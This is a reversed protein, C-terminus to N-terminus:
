KNKKTNNNKSNMRKKMTKRRKDKVSLRLKDKVSLWASSNEPLIKENGYDNTRCKHYDRLKVHIKPIKVIYREDDRKRVIWRYQPRQTGPLNVLIVKGIFKDM